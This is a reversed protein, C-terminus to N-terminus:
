DSVAGERKGLVSGVNLIVGLCHTHQLPRLPLPLRELVEQGLLLHVWAGLLALQVLEEDHRDLADRPASHSERNPTKERESGRREEAVVKKQSLQHAVSPWAVGIQLSEVFGNLPARGKPWHDPGRWERRERERERKGPEGVQCIIEVLLLPVGLGELAGKVHLLDQVVGVYPEM